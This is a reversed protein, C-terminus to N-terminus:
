KKPVGPVDKPATDHWFFKMAETKQPYEQSLDGGNYLRGNMMVQHITNTNRINELPNKDLILLDALKGTEISGVDKSLGIAKAGLITAVKLANHESLGGSQMSWLEWHYGLGQLQGHSGVGAIGGKKVLDNVFEAHREFVHEEKMFWGRRRRSKQDLERKPTFYNLKEDYNVKETAYYYNEAWPGGYAVLLTPTYAMQLDSVFDIVDDYLPYIPFSHEHGPYGDLSQTMNLKFDLGGETTPMLKQEKAAMIIWQRQQRNGTLYMKITKTNYYESYQKLVKSAHEKSKINYMWFGVGPGTSYIRPGKLEGTEVMDAYTLVDTTATQPDRTTTVGYALNATYAWTNKNHMGWLPWMHAHTDVFGPVITKGTVDVVKAGGAELNTGVQVIRNNEILIDGKEIVEDGKMSIIRAGKLLIKGEPIDRNVKVEIRKESPTYGKKEKDDKKDEDKKDSDKEDSDKDTGNEKAKEKEKKEKKIREEDARAAALDYSFHANGISWNIHKGDASWYPFQGGIETLKRSPFASSAPNAVSISAAKGAIKPITLWYVNNNILALAEEGTPSINLYSANSPKTPATPGASEPLMCHNVHEELASGFTTIGSVKLHSKEDTGDWKISVLEGGRKYLYIRESAKTFHPTGRGQSQAILTSGGGAAPIWAIEEASNFSFLGIAKNFEEDSGKMFVIKSGDKSWVPETYLASEITLKVPKAKGKTNVKYLHGQGEDWTSFVISSGDPSWVPMAEVADFKTLRKPSGDPYDMVYLKDLATFALRKGDPSLEPDRIQNVIMEKEDSIPYDFELRPGVMLKEEVKFPINVAGGGNIPINYIKGGYSAVVNKSDPTFAMAPLVGLPAISEQEDRQVPYALWNEEGTMLNRLMLGTETNYRTGYVLWMGDPSLTPAFSSGYQNVKMDLKGTERDLTWISYQPLQANYNWANARRSFWIYRNDPAVVPESMKMNDPKSVLMAGGGGEKHYMWLKFNRRGRSVILYNGDKTWAAAQYTENKSKTIQTKEKTELEMLWLNDSGSEDSIYAISKGDPSFRAHTDFALGETIREAKGGAIPLLYLDGLMEFIIQKGDPSVDLSIWSGNDTNVQLERTAELELPKKKKPKKAKTTDTKVTDQQFEVVLGLSDARVELQLAIFFLAALCLYKIKM